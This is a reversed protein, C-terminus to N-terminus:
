RRRFLSVLGLLIAGITAIIILPVWAPITATATQLTGTANCSLDGSTANCSIGSISESQVKGEAMVLFGVVLVIALTAVGVALGALQNFQGKKQKMKFHFAM